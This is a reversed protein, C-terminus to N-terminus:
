ILNATMGGSLFDLMRQKMVGHDNQSNLSPTPRTSNWKRNEEGFRSLEFRNTTVLIQNLYELSDLSGCPKLLKCRSTM